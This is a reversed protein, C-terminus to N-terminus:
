ADALAHATERAANFGVVVQESDPAKVAYRDRGLSWVEVTGHERELTLFPGAASSEWAQPERDRM